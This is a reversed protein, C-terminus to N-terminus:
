NYGNYRAKNESNKRVLLYHLYSHESQPHSRRFHEAIPIPDLPASVLQPIACKLCGVSSCNSSKPLKVGLLSIKRDTGKLLIKISKVPKVPNLDIFTESISQNVLCWVMLPHNM